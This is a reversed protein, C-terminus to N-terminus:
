QNSTKLLVGLAHDIEEKHTKYYETKEEGRLTNFTELIEFPPTSPRSIIDDPPFVTSLGISALSRNIKNAVEQDKETLQQKLTEIQLQLTKEQQKLDTEYQQKAGPFAAITQRYSAIEEKLSTIEDQYDSIQEELKTIQKNNNTGLM